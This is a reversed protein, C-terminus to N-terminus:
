ENLYGGRDTALYENIFSLSSLCRPIFSIALAEFHCCSSKFRPERSQVGLTRGVFEFKTQFKHSKLIAFGSKKQSPMENTKEIYM